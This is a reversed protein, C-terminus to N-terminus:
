YGIIVNTNNNNNNNNIAFFRGRKRAISIAIFFAPAMHVMHPPIGGERGGEKAEKVEKCRWKCSVDRTGQASPPLVYRLGAAFSGM